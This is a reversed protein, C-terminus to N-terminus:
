VLRDRIIGRSVKNRKKYVPVVNADRRDQRIKEAIHTLM